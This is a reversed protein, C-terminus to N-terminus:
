IERLSFNDVIVTKNKHVADPKALDKVLDELEKSDPSATDTLGKEQDTLISYNGCMCEWGFYGDLRKRGSIIKPNDAKKELWDIAGDQRISIQRTEGCKNCSVEYHKHM